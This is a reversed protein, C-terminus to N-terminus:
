EPRDQGDVVLALLMAYTNPNAVPTGLVMALVAARFSWSASRRLGITALLFGVWCVIWLWPLGLLWTLSFASPHVSGAVELYALHNDVGAGLLSLAAWAGATAMTVLLVKWARQGLLWVGLAIPWLKLAAMTGVIVGAIPHRRLVWTALTGGLIYGNVNGLGLEMALPIALVALAIGTRLPHRRALWSISVAVIVLEALWWVTIGLDGPLAALPRWLVAIPPPSVLPRTWFPPQIAVPRDGAGIEYLQHGANLREGAALYVHADGLFHSWTLQAYIVFSAVVLGLGVPMM